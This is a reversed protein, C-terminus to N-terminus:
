LLFQYLSNNLLKGNEKWFYFKIKSLQYCSDTNFSSNLDLFLPCNFIKTKPIDWFGLIVLNQATIMHYIIIIIIIILVLIEPNITRQRGTHTNQSRRPYEAVELPYEAVWTVSHPYEAVQLPYEAVYFNWHPCEAVQLSIKCLVSKFVM